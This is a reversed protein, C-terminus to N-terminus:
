KKSGKKALTKKAAKKVPKAAAKKIVSVKKKASKAAPATHDHIVKKAAEMKEEVIAIVKNKGAVLSEKVADMKEGAKEMLHHTAEAIVGPKSKKM